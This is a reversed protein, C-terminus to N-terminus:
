HIYASNTSPTLYWAPKQVGGSEAWAKFDPYARQIDIAEEPWKWASPINLAWPHGLKSLYYGKVGSDDDSTNFRSKDAGSTPPYGPLHVEEGVSNSKFLFPNYPPTYTFLSKTLTDKFAVNLQYTIAPKTVGGKVTNVKRSDTSSLGFSVYADGFIRFVQYINTNGLVSQIPSINSATAGNIKLTAYDLQTAFPIGTLELAFGDHQGAGTATLQYLVEIEKITGDARLIQRYRYNVVLDNMDYDGTSPWMDEYALTNWGTKSPYWVSSARQSDSPFEDVSNPVGDNDNDNTIPASYISNKNTFAAIPNVTLRYVADNFDHDCGSGASRNMDEFALAFLSTNPVNLLTMHQRLNIDTEPNMEKLSYFVWNPDPYPRVGGNTSVQSFNVINQYGDAVLFFGIGATCNGAVTCDKGANWSYGALKPADITIKLTDGTYLGNVSGGANFFSANPFIIADVMVKNVSTGTTLDLRTPPHAPDFSFYGLSNRYGANEYVFSIEVDAARDLIVNYRKYDYIVGSLEPFLIQNTSQNTREPLTLLVYNLLTKYEAAVLPDSTSLNYKPPTKPIGTIDIDTLSFVTPWLPIPLIKIMGTLCVAMLLIAVGKPLHKILESKM